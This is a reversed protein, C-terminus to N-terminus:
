ETTYRYARATAPVSFYFTAGEGPMSEVWVEGGWGEVARKVTSLGIGLGYHNESSLREFPEFIKDHEAKAIGIGNDRVHFIVAEESKVAGCRVLPSPNDGIFKLANDLLNIFVQQLRVPDVKIAPLEEEVVVEVNRAAIETEREALIENLVENPCVEVPRGEPRGAESYALLSGIFTEMRHALYVIKDLCEQLLDGSADLAVHAYGEVISVSSRLDHSITHAFTELEANRARLEDEILMREAIENQLRENTMMVQLTRDEVLEELHKRQEGTEDTAMEPVIEIRPYELAMEEYKRVQRRLDELEELLEDLTKKGDKMRMVWSFCTHSHYISKCGIIALIERLEGKM